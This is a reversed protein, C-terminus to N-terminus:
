PALPDLLLPIRPDDRQELGAVLGHAPHAGPMDVVELRDFLDAGREGSEARLHGPVIPWMVEVDLAPAVQDDDDASVAGEKARRVADTWADGKEAYVARGIM